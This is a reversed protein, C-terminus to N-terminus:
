MTDKESNSANNLSFISTMPVWKEGEKAFPVPQQFTWMLREWAEVRPNNADALSKLHPDFNSRTEMVMVLRNGARYIDMAEIGSVRISNLIDPWIFEPKHWREYEAIASKDDRLDLVFMQRPM